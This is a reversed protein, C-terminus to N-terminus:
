DRDGGEGGAKLEWWVTKCNSRNQLFCSFHISTGYTNSKIERCSMGSKHGLPVSKLIFGVAAAEQGRVKVRYKPNGVSCASFLPVREPPTAETKTSICPTGITTLM